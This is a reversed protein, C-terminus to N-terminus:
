RWHAGKVAVYQCNGGSINEAIAKRYKYNPCNKVLHGRATKTGYATRIQKRSTGGSTEKAKELDEKHIGLSVRMWMHQPREVIKKNIKLLYARELTKFGFYDILYDRSDEIMENIIDIRIHFLVQYISM